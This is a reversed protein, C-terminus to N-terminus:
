KAGEGSRARQRARALRDGMGTTIRHEVVEVFLKQHQGKMRLAGSKDHFKLKKTHGILAGDKDRMEIVEIGAVARAADNPWESVAKLTGDDNLLQKINSHALCAIEELTAEVSRRVKKFAARDLAAIAQKVNPKRLTESAISAASNKSYGAAIAARTGNRDKRYHEVFATEKPTLAM